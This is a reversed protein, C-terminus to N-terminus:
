VKKFLLWLFQKRAAKEELTTANSLQNYSMAYQVIQGFKKIKKELFEFAQEDLDTSQEDRIKIAEEYTAIQEIMEFQAMLKPTFGMQNKLKAPSVGLLGSLNALIENYSGSRM